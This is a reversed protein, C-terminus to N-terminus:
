LILHLEISEMTQSLVFSYFWTKNHKIWSSHRIKTPQNTSKSGNENERQRERAQIYQTMTNLMSVHQQESTRRTVKRHTWTWKSMSEGEWRWRRNEIEPLLLNGNNSYEICITMLYYVRAWCQQILSNVRWIENWKKKWEALCIPILLM